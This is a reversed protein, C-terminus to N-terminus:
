KLQEKPSRGCQSAVEPWDDLGDADAASSPFAPARLPVYRLALLIAVIFTLYKLPVQALTEEADGTIHVAAAGHSCNPSTIPSLRLTAFM